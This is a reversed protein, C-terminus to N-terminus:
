GWIASWVIKSPSVRARSSDKESLPFLHSQVSLGWGCCNEAAHWSYPFHLPSTGRGKVATQIPTDSYTSILAAQCIKSTWETRQITTRYSIQKLMHKNWVSVLMITKTWGRLKISVKQEKNQTHKGEAKKRCPPKFVHQLELSDFVKLFKSSLLWHSKLQLYQLSFGTHKTRTFSVTVKIRCM